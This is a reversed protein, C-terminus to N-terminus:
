SISSSISLGLFSAARSPLAKKEDSLGNRELKDIEEDIEV